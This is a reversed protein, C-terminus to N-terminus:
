SSKGLCMHLMRTVVKWPVQTNVQGEGGSLSSWSLLFRMQKEEGQIGLVWCLVAINLVYKIFLLMFMFIIDWEQPPFHDNVQNQQYADM